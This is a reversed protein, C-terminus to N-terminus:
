AFRVTYFDPSNYVPDVHNHIIKCLAICKMPAQMLNGGTVSKKTFYGTDTAKFGLAILHEAAAEHSPYSARITDTM